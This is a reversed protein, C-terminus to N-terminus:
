PPSLDAVLTEPQAGTEVLLRSATQADVEIGEPLNQTGLTWLKCRAPLHYARVDDAHAAIEARLRQLLEAIGADDAVVTFASYQVTAGRRRLVRHVRRLRRPERIDYCVFWTKSEGASM